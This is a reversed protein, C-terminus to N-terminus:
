RSSLTIYFPGFSILRAADPLSDSSPQETEFVKRAKECTLAIATQGDKRVNLM